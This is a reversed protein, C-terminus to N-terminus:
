STHKVLRSVRDSYIDSRKESLDVIAEISNLVVFDKTLVKLYLVDTDQILPVKTSNGETLTSHASALNRHWLSSRRGRQFTRLSTWSTASSLIGRRDRHIHHGAGIRKGNGSWLWRHLPVFRRRL